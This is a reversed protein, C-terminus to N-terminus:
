SHMHMPARRTHGSPSGGGTRVNASPASIVHAKVPAFYQYSAFFWINCRGVCIANVYYTYRYSLQEQTRSYDTCTDRRVPNAHGGATGRGLAFGM